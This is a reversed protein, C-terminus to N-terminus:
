SKLAFVARVSFGGHFCECEVNLSWTKSVPQQHKVFISPNNILIQNHPKM